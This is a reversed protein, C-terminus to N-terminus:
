EVVVWATRVNLDRSTVVHWQHGSRVSLSAAFARATNEDGGGADDRDLLSHKGDECCCTALREVEHVHAGYLRLTSTVVNVYRDLERADDTTQAIAERAAEVIRQEADDAAQERHLDDRERRADRVTAQYDERNM